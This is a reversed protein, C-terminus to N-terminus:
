TAVAGDQVLGEEDHHQAPASAALPGGGVAAAQVAAVQRGEAAAIAGKGNRLAAVHLALPAFAAFVKAAVTQQQRRRGVGSPMELLPVWGPPLGVGKPRPLSM